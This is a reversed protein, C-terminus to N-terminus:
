ENRLFRICEEIDDLEYHEIDADYRQLDLALGEVSVSGHDYGNDTSNKLANRILGLLHQNM